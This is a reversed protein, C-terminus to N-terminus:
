KESGTKAPMAEGAGRVEISKLAEDKSWGM